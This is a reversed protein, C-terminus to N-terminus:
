ATSGNWYTPQWRRCVVPGGIYWRRAFGASRKGQPVQCRSRIAKGALARPQVRLGTWRLCALVQSWHFHRALLLDRPLEMTIAPLAAALPVRSSNVRPCVAPWSRNVGRGPERGLLGGQSRGPGRFRRRRGRRRESSRRGSIARSLPWSPSVRAFVPGEVRFAPM